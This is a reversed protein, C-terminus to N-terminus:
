FCLQLNNHLSFSCFDFYKILLWSLLYFHVHEHHTDDILTFKKDCNLRLFICLIFCNIDLKNKKNFFDWKYVQGLTINWIVYNARMWNRKKKYNESLVIKTKKVARKLLIWPLSSSVFFGMDFYNNFSMIRTLITSM